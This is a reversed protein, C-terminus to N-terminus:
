QMRRSQLDDKRVVQYCLNYYTTKFTLPKCYKNRKMAASSRMSLEWAAVCM